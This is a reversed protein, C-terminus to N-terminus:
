VLRSTFKEHFFIGTPGATSLGETERFRDFTRLLALCRFGGDDLHSLHCPSHDPMFRPVPSALPFEGPM